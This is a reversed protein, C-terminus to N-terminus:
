GNMGLELLEASCSARIQGGATKGVGIMWAFGYAYSKEKMVLQRSQLM